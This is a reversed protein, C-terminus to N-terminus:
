SQNDEGDRAAAVAARVADMSTGAALRRLGRAIGTKEFFGDKGSAAQTLANITVQAIQVNSNETVSTLTKNADAYQKLLKAKTNFWRLKEPLPPMDPEEIASCKDIQTQAYQIMLALERVPEILDDVTTAIETIATEEAARTAPTNVVDNM